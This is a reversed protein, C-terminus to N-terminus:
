ENCGELAKIRVDIEQIAKVIFPIFGAYNMALRSEVDEPVDEFDYLNDNVLNGYGSDGYVSELASQVEQASFGVRIRSGKLTGEEWAQTDYACLGYKCLKEKDEDSLNEKDIYMERGNYVYRIAKVSNLFETAGDDIETIDTKDRIDSTTTLEVKCTLSSLNSADGLQMGNANACAAGTGIATAYEGRANAGAGIATSYSSYNAYADTGIAICNVQAAANDGIAVGNTYAIPDNGIAVASNALASASYGIAIGNTYAWAKYGIATACDTRGWSNVGIGIGYSANAQANCGIAIASEGSANAQDGLGVENAEFCAVPGNESIYVPNTASGTETTLGTANGAIDYASNAKDYATNAQEYIAAINVGTNTIVGNAMYVPFEAAGISENSAYITGNDIYIPTAANGATGSVATITGNSMYVPNLDGGANGTSATVASNKLFVPKVSSGINGSAHVANPDNVTYSNLNGESDYAKIISVNAM